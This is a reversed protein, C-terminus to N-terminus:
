KGPTPLKAVLRLSIQLEELQFHPRMYAVATYAGPKGKIESVEIRADRLPFKAKADQGASDDLLVYNAIWKNLFTQCEDRSMFSGIKDRMMVKLFHAFRSVAMIYQLQASLRSNANADDSLYLQPKNASQAAMFVATDTGKYYCLPIFGLKSLENERRDTIAIETPCKTAIDGDDTMFAHTPLGEVLGGGEVGRIAACWEHRAFADTMRAALAYAANGWLYKSHDRGDVKEEYDFEDVPVTDKGYPLRMLVHPMCLGVYKSDDSRRFMQWKLFAENDFIKELDRPGALETFNNWNFMSPSTAAIFPAHASAAVNSMKELLEIDQPHRGFEYDGVLAGFPKGGLTGYEEEYIKKFIASQDFETVRTLDKHLDKKSVNMVKIKLMSSTETQNVFYALGRWSGELKQFDESHMVENLQTSILEDLAAIRDNLSKELDKSVKMQGTMVEDALDKVWEQGRARERDSQGLRGETVIKDLLRIPADKTETVEAAKQPSPQVESAM